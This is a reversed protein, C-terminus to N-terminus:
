TMFHINLTSSYLLFRISTYQVMNAVISLLTFFISLSSLANLLFIFHLIKLAPHVMQGPPTPPPPPGRGAFPNPPIGSAMGSSGQGQNPPPYQGQPGRRQGQNQGQGQGQMGTYSPQLRMYNVIIVFFSSYISVLVIPRFKLIRETFLSINM